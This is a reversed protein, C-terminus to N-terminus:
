RTPSASSEKSSTPEPSPRPNTYEDDLQENDSDLKINSILTRATTDSGDIEQMKKNGIQIIATAM